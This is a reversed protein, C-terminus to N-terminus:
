SASLLMTEPVVYEPSNIDPHRQLISEMQKVQSRSFEVSTGKQPDPRALRTGAQSDEKFATLADVMASHPLGIHHFLMKLAEDRRSNLEEYRLAPMQFGQEFFRLHRDMMMLWWMTLQEILSITAPLHDLGYDVLHIPRNHYSEWWAHAEALEVELPANWRLRRGYLSGVWGETSRYLFLHQADPFARCILDIDDINQNRLKIVGVEANRHNPVKFLWPVSSQILSVLHSDRGGDPTRLYRIQGLMDPESLSVVQEVKGFAKHLLTSGCRGINHIFLFRSCVMNISQSLKHFDEYDVAFLRVANEFQTQYFFSTPAPDIDPPLEAFIARRNDDDLCCLSVSGNAIIFDLEIEDGETTSFDALSLPMRINERGREDIHLVKAPM